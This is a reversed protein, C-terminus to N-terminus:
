KPEEPAFGAGRRDGPQPAPPPVAPLINIVPQQAAATPLKHEVADALKDITKVNQQHQEEQRAESGAIQVKTEVLQTMASEIKENHHNATDIAKNSKFIQLINVFAAIAASIILGLQTYYVSYVEGSAGTPPMCGALALGLMILICRKLTKMGKM